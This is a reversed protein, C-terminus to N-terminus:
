QFLVQQDVQDIAQVAVQLDGFATQLGAHDRGQLMLTLRLSGKGSVRMLIISALRVTSQEPIRWTTGPAGLAKAQGRGNEGAGPTEKQRAEPRRRRTPRLAKSSSAPM